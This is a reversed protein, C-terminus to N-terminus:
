TNTAKRFTERAEIYAAYHFEAAEYEQQSQTRYVIAQRQAEIVADHELGVAGAADKAYATKLVAMHALSKGVEGCELYERYHQKEIAKLYELRKEQLRERKRRAWETIRKLM